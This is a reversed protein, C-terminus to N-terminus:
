IKQGSLKQYHNIAFLDTMGSVYDVILKLKFYAPLDVIHIDSEKENINCKEAYEKKIVRFLSSSIMSEAKSAYKKKMKIIANSEINKDFGKPEYFLLDIYHNFLGKLISDGALELSVIERYPFIKTCTINQLAKTLPALRGDELLEKNYDGCEIKDLNKIFNSLSEDVLVGILYTRIDVIKKNEDDENKIIKDIHCISKDILEFFSTHLNSKIKELEIEKRTERFIRLIDDLTIIEKNFADEIDIVSYCISDAAEMLYSLPHRLLNYDKSILGCEKCIEDLYKKKQIFFVQKKTEINEKIPASTNPYKLYSALSAVTLNLGYLDNLAQLKTIVRFGQANGDFNIFDNKEENTIETFLHSKSDNDFLERFYNQIVTEGFHGFPPNGIDHLLCSSKLIVPIIRYINKNFTDGLSHIIKLFDAHNCIGVGLSYGVSMVEMSHTLRTHINDNTNLPFVQTKDHMRRLAPSFIVRGLDSEYPNRNSDLDFNASTTPSRLRKPSLLQEWNM